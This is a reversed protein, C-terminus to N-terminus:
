LHDLDVDELADVHGNALSPDAAAEGSHGHETKSQEEEQLHQQQEQQEELEEQKLEQSHVLNVLAFGALVCLGGLLYSLSFRLSHFLLDFLVALPITLALGLSAILPSTLLVSRAWLFDSVVTGLMGNITLFLMVDGAPLGQFRELGAADLVLFWPWMLLLNILGLFGFVLEMSFLSDDAPCRLRLSVSYFGYFVASAAALLDGLIKHSVDPEAADGGSTSSSGDGGGGSGGGSSGDRWSIITAGAITAAVGLVQRPIIPTAPDLLKTFLLVFLSSTTALITSSSISTLELSLNFFFNMCFWVPSLWLALLIHQRLTFPVGVASVDADPSSPDARGAVSGNAAEVDVIRPSAIQHTDFHSRDSPAALSSSSSPHQTPPLLADSSDASSESASSLSESSALTPTTPVVPPADLGTLSGHTSSRSRAEADTEDAGAAATSHQSPDHLLTAAERMRAKQSRCCRCLASLSWGRQAAYQRAYFFPLYLTFLSTSYYTLFFPARFGSDVFISQILASSGVWLLVVILLLVLGLVYRRSVTAASLGGHGHGHAHAHSAASHESHPHSHDATLAASPSHPSVPSAVFPAVCVSRLSGAAATARQGAAGRESRRRTQGMQQQPPTQTHIRDAHTLSFRFLM